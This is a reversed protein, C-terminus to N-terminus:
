YSLSALGSIGAKDYLTPRKARWHEELWLRSSAWLYSWPIHAANMGVFAVRLNCRLLALGSGPVSVLMPGAGRLIGALEARGCGRLGTQANPKKSEALVDCEASTENSAGRHPLRADPFSTGSRVRSSRFRGDAADSSLTTVAPVENQFRYCARRRRKLASGM